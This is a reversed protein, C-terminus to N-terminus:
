LEGFGLSSIEVFKGTKFSENAALGVALAKAGDREDASQKSADGTDLSEGKLPGFLVNLM